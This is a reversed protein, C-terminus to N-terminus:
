ALTLTALERLESQLNQRAQYEFHSAMATTFYLAPRDLFDQLVKGRAFRYEEIPAWSYETRILHSYQDYVPKKAGLIAMDMDLFLPLDAIRPSIVEHKETAAVCEMVPPIHREDVLMAVMARRAWEASRRENDKLRTDYIVDHFWIAFEVTEPRKILSRYTDVQRLLFM